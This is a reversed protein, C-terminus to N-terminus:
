ANTRRSACWRHSRRRQHGASQQAEPQHRLRQLSRVGGVQRPDRTDREREEDERDDLVEGLAPRGRSGPLTEGRATRAREGGGQEDGRHEREAVVWQGRADDEAIHLRRERDRTVSGPEIEAIETWIERR